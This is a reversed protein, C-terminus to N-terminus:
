LAIQQNMTHACHPFNSCAYFLKGTKNNKKIVMYGKCKACYIQEKILKLDSYKRRCGPFNSCGVFAEGKKSKREVLVGTKCTLCKPNNSISGKVGIANLPVGYQEILETVFVSKDKDPVVIYLENKTRTLAVYFLRREEAFEMYDPTTLVWQLIPDDTIRNPFGLTANKGNILIVNDAELGKSKHVSMFILDLSPYKVSRITLEKTDVVFGPYDELQALDLNNRGLLMVSRKEDGNELGYKSVLNDVIMEVVQGMHESFAQIKIPQPTSRGSALDKTLQNPNRMVFSGAIDILEQSNRYTREIKMTEYAGFYDGFRTFLDLDSGAFRYISQWDDGVCMVKAGSKEKIAQILGFRSRSIDQYEDIIIYKYQFHSEPLRALETADNIMDNFDIKRESAISTQYYLYAPRAIALFLKTRERLFFNREKLENERELREFDLERYGCSKFLSIFSGILKIFDDFQQNQERKCLLEYLGSADIPNISVNHQMLHEALRELLVGKQNYYSFSEICTTKMQDHTQRKWHIGKIYKEEEIGELWPARMHENVGYHEIYIGYKPLYFDPKYQRFERTATPYEYDTEYEYDIGNLFLYNAILIEELSKMKEGKLSDFKENLRELKSKLSEFDLSKQSEHYEGLTKFNARDHPINFYVGFFFVLQQLLHPKTLVATEFFSHIYSGPENVVSLKFDSHQAIIGTGLKHFTKVIVPVNLKDNIREQMEKASKNTFSILLIEEPQVKKIQTLFKVKGAITLTKGSGAGALVLNNDEDTLVSIRQQEDLSKGDIDDFLSKQMVLQLEIYGQNALRVHLDINSYISVFWAQPQSLEQVDAHKFFQFVEQYSSCYRQKDSTSIYEKKIQEFCLNAELVKEDFQQNHKQHIILQEEIQSKLNKAEQHLQAYTQCLVRYEDSQFLWQKLRKNKSEFKLHVSPEVTFPSKANLVPLLTEVRRLLDPKSDSNLSIYQPTSSFLQLTTSFESLKTGVADLKITTPRIIKMAQPKYILKQFFSLLASM